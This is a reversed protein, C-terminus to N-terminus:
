RIKLICEVVREAEKILSDFGSGLKTKYTFAHSHGITTTGCTLLRLEDLQELTGNWKNNVRIRIIGKSNIGVVFNAGNNMEEIQIPQFWNDIFLISIDGSRRILKREIYSAHDKKFEEQIENTVKSFDDPLWYNSNEFLPILKDVSGYQPSYVKNWFYDNLHQSAQFFKSTDQWIDYIDILSSLQSLQGINQKKLENLCFDNLIKTACRKKDYRVLIDTYNDFFGEPYLHHDFFLINKVLGAKKLTYLVDFAEKNDGFSVDAIYLQNVPNNTCYDQIQRVKTDIDAYNTFYYENNQSLYAHINLVCGLADLDNHSFVVNKM